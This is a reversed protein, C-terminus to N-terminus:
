PHYESGYQQVLQDHVEAQINGGSIVLIAPRFGIKGSQVAALTVAGSGEIQQGYKTWAFAIARAIEDENVLILDYLCSSLIPITVSGNEVAGSLGDALSPLEIVGDQTKHHFLAHFFPSATSQVGILRPPSNISALVACIGSALGGGGIPVLWTPNQLFPLEELIELALTGQGSIVQGDNYPSVWTAGNEQAYDIGAQEAEAYGGPILKVQAGLGQMAAIKMPVAHESAFITVRAGVLQGAFALGQGHNGASAAVLGRQREWPQLSLVKNLAGRLKFSGTIQQNEWKIYIDLDPDYVLPTSRIFPKIRQRAELIWEYPIM